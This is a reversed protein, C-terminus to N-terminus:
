NEKTIYIYDVPATLATNIIWGEPALTGEYLLSTGIPLTFFETSELVETLDDLRLNPDKNLLRPRPLLLKM